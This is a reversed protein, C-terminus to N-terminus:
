TGERHSAMMTGTSLLLCKEHLHIKFYATPSAYLLTTEQGIWIVIHM